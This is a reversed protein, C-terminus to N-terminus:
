KPPAPVNWAPFEYFSSEQDPDETPDSPLQQSEEDEELDADGKDVGTADVELVDAQVNDGSFSAPEFDDRASVAAIDQSEVTDQTRLQSDGSDSCAILHCCAVAAVFTVLLKKM